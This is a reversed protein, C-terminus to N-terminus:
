KEKNMKSMRIRTMKRQESTIRGPKRYTIGRKPLEYTKDIDTESICRFTQPYETVLADMQRIVAPDFHRLLSSFLYSISLLLIDKLCKGEYIGSFRM